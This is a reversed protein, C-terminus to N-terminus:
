DSTSSQIASKLQLDELYDPLLTEDEDVSFQSALIEIRNESDQSQSQSQSQSQM